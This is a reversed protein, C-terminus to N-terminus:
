PRPEKEAPTAPPTALEVLQALQALANQLDAVRSLAMDALAQTRVVAGQAQHVAADERALRLRIASSLGNGLPALTALIKDRSECAATLDSRATNFAADAEALEGRAGALEIEIEAQWATQWAQADVVDNM